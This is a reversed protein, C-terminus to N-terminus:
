QNNKHNAAIRVLACGNTYLACKECRAYVSFPCKKGSKDDQQEGGHADALIAFACSGDYFLACVERKCQNNMGNNFPCGKPEPRNLAEELAAAKRKEASEKRRRHFDQLDDQYIEVGDIVITPAYEIMGKGIERYRRGHKDIKWESNDM